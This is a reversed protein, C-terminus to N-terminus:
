VVQRMSMEVEEICFSSRLWRTQKFNHVKQIFEHSDFPAPVRLALFLRGQEALLGLYLVSDGHTSIGVLLSEFLPLPTTQVPSCTTFTPLFESGRM